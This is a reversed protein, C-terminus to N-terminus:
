ATLRRRECDADLQDDADAWVTDRGSGCSVVDVTGPDGAVDIQDDGAGGSFVERGTGGTMVDRGSGGDAEGGPSLIVDNGSGGASRASGFGPEGLLIRDDGSGGEVTTITGGHPTLVDDGADGHLRIVAAGDGASVTDDGSGGWAEAVFAAGAHVIDDGSGGWAYADSGNSVIDDNGAEGWVYSPPYFPVVRARDDRNGLYVYVPTHSPASCRPPVLTCGAGLTLPASAEAFPFFQAPADDAMRWPDVTFDNVEGPSAVYRLQEVGDEGRVIGLTAAAAPEVWAAATLMGAIALLSARRTARWRLGQTPLSM